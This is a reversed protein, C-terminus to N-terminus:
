RTALIEEAGRAAKDRLESEWCLALMRKLDGADLGYSLGERVLENAAREVNGYQWRELNNLGM